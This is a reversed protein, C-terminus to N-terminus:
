WATAGGDVVLEAGTVYSSEDSALFLAARAVDEITGFRGVPIGELVQASLEESDTIFAVMETDVVGPHISNARIGDAAHQLATSKTFLRVAGKSATYAGEFPSGILGVTSSINVISGGGARRMAPIAHKTGLFVGRANIALIRDWEEQSTQEIPTPRYVAANNVLVHLAGFTEATLKVANAWDQEVSVDLRVFAAKGSQRVIQDAVRRGDEVQIDGLVVCAGERAFLRAEAAGQGRSAGTIVAVKGALRGATAM